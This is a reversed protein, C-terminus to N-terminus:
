YGIWHSNPPNDEKKAERGGSGDLTSQKLLIASLKWWRDTEGSLAIVCRQEYFVTREMEEAPVGAQPQLEEPCATRRSLAEV